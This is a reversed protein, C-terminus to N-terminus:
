WNSANDQQRQDGLGATARTTDSEETNFESDEPDENAVADESDELSEDQSESQRAANAGSLGGQQPSYYPGYGDSPDDGIAGYHQNRPRTTTTAGVSTRSEDIMSGGLSSDPNLLDSEADFGDNRGLSDRDTLSDQRGTVSNDRSGPFDSSIGPTNGGPLGRDVSRELGTGYPDRPDTSAVDSDEPTTLSNESFGSDRSTESFSDIDSNSFGSNRRTISSGAQTSDTASRDGSIASGQTSRSGSQAGGTSSTASGSTAGAGSSGASSGGGASSSQAAASAAVLAGSLLPLLIKKDLKMRLM